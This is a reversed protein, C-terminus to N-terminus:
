KHTGIGDTGKKRRSNIAEHLEHILHIKRLKLPITEQTYLKQLCSQSMQLPASKTTTKKNKTLRTFRQLDSLNNLKLKHQVFMCVCVSVSVCPCM